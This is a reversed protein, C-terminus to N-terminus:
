VYDLSPKKRSVRRMLPDILQLSLYERPFRPGNQINLHKIVLRQVLPYHYQVVSKKPLWELLISYEQTVITRVFRSAYAPVLQALHKQLPRQDSSKCETM